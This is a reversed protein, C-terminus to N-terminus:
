PVTLTRTDLTQGNRHLTVQYATGGALIFDGPAGAAVIRGTRQDRVILQTDAPADAPAEITVTQRKTYYRTINTAPITTDSSAWVMLFHDGAAPTPTWATAYISTLPRSEDALKAKDFFWTQDLESREIAGIFRWQRGDWVEVWTHNGNGTYTPGAPSVWDAVGVVRAPIGVARCANVLIISLGTCSAYGADISEQVSQNPRPRRTAHYQVGLTEFIANNLKVAADGCSTADAVIKGAIPQLKARWPERTEDLSAYPLVYENFLETPVAAAWPHASRAALALKANERLYAEDIQERDRQPLNERLYAVAAHVAQDSVGAEEPTAGASLEVMVAADFVLGPDSRDVLTSAISAITREVRGDFLAHGQFEIKVPKDLDVVQDNLLVTLKEVGEYEVIEITQGKRQAIVRDGKEATGQPVALWYFRDHTVDDQYWAVRQPVPNRTFTQMWAIAGVEKLQMWHGLGEHIGVQHVYGQPDQQHLDALKRAWERAVTNRNYASDDAGVHLAFPLNRLGIPQAENPHGAMMAAAAFRDAMRPALQYVGDGGASYGVLYVRDRNVNDFAVANAILRDFMPDIHSEHWLNWNNTPARPAIVLADTVPYLNHQNSWQSDNVEATTGGGGHMSIFLSWGDEPMQGMTKRKLRMTHEGLAVTQADWEARRERRLNALHDRWLRQRAAQAQPRDLPARAFSQEAIASRQDHPHRLYADLAQLPDGAGAARTQGGAVLAAILGVLLHSTM